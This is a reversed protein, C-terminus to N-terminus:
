IYLPRDLRALNTEKTSKIPRRSMRLIPQSITDAIHLSVSNVSDRERERERVGAPTKHVSVDKATKKVHGPVPETQRACLTFELYSSWICFVIKEQFYEYLIALSYKNLGPHKFALFTSLFLGTNM